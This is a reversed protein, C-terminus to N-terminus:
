LLSDPILTGIRGSSLQLFPAPRLPRGQISRGFESPRAKVVREVCGAGGYCNYSLSEKGAGGIIGRRDDGRPDSVLSFVV